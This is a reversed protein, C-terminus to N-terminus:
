PTCIAETLAERVLDPREMPLFHTTGPVTEVRIRGAGIQGASREDVSCTSAAEARLIRIPCRSRELASWSDHLQSVYNSVEWEPTCALEVAGGPQAVFGAAVYDELQVDSWTRFAGRGRYSDVAAAHSPFSRRRRIAGQVMSSAPMAEMESASPTARRADPSRIVPDFLAIARVREPVEGATLVSTAGGMSHGGLAVRALGEADLFAILDDKFDYWSDREYGTPLRTAGHGRLDPTLIHFRDALPALISRYARANFGNAHLFVADVPRHEPGYDLVAVEGGGTPAQIRVFRARPEYAIDL